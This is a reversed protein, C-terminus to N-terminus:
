EHRCIVKVLSRQIEPTLTEMEDLYVLEKHIRLLPRCGPLLHIDSAERTVAEALVANFLDEGNAPNPNNIRQFPEDTFKSVVKGDNNPQNVELPKPEDTFKSVVQEQVNNPTTQTSSSPEDDYQALLSPDVYNPDITNQNDDM